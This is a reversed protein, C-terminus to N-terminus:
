LNLLLSLSVLIQMLTSCCFTSFLCLHFMKFTIILPKISSTPPYCYYSATWRWMNVEEETDFLSCLFYIATCVPTNHSVNIIQREHRFNFIWRCERELMKCTTTSFCGQGLDPKTFSVKVSIVKNCQTLRMLAKKKKKRRDTQRFM